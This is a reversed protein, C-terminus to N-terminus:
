RDVTVSDLEQGDCLGLGIGKVGHFGVTVREKSINYRKLLDALRSNNRNVCYVDEQSSSNDTKFYVRYNPFIYGNQQIATVYGSHQGSVTSDFRLSAAGVLVLIVFIGMCFIAIVWVLFEDMILVGRWLIWVMKM